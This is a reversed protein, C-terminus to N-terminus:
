LQELILSSREVPLIRYNTFSNRGSGRETKAKTAGAKTLETGISIPHGHQRERPSLSARRLWLDSVKGAAVRISGDEDIYVPAHGGNNHRLQGSTRIAYPIIERETFTLYDDSTERNAAWSDVANVYKDTGIMDAFIRAGTRMIANVEGIRGTGTKMSPMVSLLRARRLVAVLLHGAIRSLDGDFAAQLEKIEEIQPRGDKTTRTQPDRLDRIIVCREIMAPESLTSGFGEGTLILGSRLQMMEVRNNDQGMKSRTGGGTLERILDDLGVLSTADDRWIAANAHGSMMNRTAPVTANNGHDERHGFLQRAVPIVGKSKGVGARAEVIFPPFLDWRQQGKLMLMTLWAFLPGTLEPYHFTAARKLIKLAQAETGEFGYQYVEMQSKRRPDPRIGNFPQLGDRTIVGNNAMFLQYQPHWGLHDTVRCAPPNQSELYFQLRQGAPMSNIGSVIGVRHGALWATLRRHDALTASDVVTDIAVGHRGRHITVEYATNGEGDDIVGRAELGFDAYDQWVVKGDPTKIRVKLGSEGNPALDGTSVGCRNKAGELKWVSDSTKKFLAASHPHRSQQDAARLKKLYKDKNPHHKKALHGAVRTLWDNGRLPSDVPLGLLDTLKVPLTSTPPEIASANSAVNLWATPLEALDGPLPPGHWDFARGDPRYWRYIRKEVKSPWVVAYRHHHQIVDIDPALKSPLRTGRPVRFFRIGSELPNDRSSSIWTPPLPRLEQELKQLQQYGHKNGYTDVDIGVVDDPLRLGLNCKKPWALWEGRKCWGGDSGTKGEPPPGKQGLPLLLLGRWGSEWYSFVKGHYTSPATDAM